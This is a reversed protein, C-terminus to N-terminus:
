LSLLPTLITRLCRNIQQQHLLAELTSKAFWSFERQLQASERRIAAGTKFFSFIWGAGNLILLNGIFAVQSPENKWLHIKNNKKREKDRGTTKVSQKRSVVNNCPKKDTM